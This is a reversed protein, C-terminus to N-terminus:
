AARHYVDLTKRAADSWSFQKVHALGRTRLTERWAADDVMRQMAAALGPVDDPELLVGAPGSVEPLSGRCSAIVPCGCQMAEVVPLGFGEYLSPFVFATARNYLAVLDPSYHNLGSVFRAMDARGSRAIRDMFPAPYSEQRGVIVLQVPGKLRAWAEVLGEINKHVNYNGVYLVFPAQVGYRPMAEEIVSPELMRFHEGPAMHIVEIREPPIDLFRMIDQKTNHSVAILRAAKRLAKMQWKFARADAIFRFQPLVLPHLDQVTVVTRCPQIYPACIDWVQTLGGTAHFVDLRGRILDLPLLAQEWFAAHSPRRPRRVPLVDPLNLDPISANSLTLYLWEDPNELRLLHRVLNYTYTGIGAGRHATQLPRMDIGIRM